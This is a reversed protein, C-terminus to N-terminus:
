FWGAIEGRDVPVPLYIAPLLDAKIPLSRATFVNECAITEAATLAEAALDRLISRYLM